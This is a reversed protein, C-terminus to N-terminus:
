LRDTLWRIAAMCALVLLIVLFPRAIEWLETM